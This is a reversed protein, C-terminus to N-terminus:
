PTCRDIVRLMNLACFRLDDIGISFGDKPEGSGVAEVIDAVNQECGPQQDDNGAHICGVSSAIPYKDSKGTFAPVSQSTYWDTMVFGDFGCEDRAFGQILDHDNATHVGNVLNYSTMVTMPRGQRIAIEFGKCYIERMTRETVNDCSFYRNDEQNNAVLHKICAGKGPNQQVGRVVAAAATGSVLPDESYYEFNRGCLPNRHINLAPALWVDVGFTVMEDSVMRGAEELLEPNWSQALAWGIPIATCYQYYTRSNEDDLSPDFPNYDDGLMEGGPLVNGDLDTKFVPQLRLGAPGDALILGKFGRSEALVSSTDGAAGPVGKSANGVLSGDSRLTGVCLEAMEDVTLQAVVDELTCRGSRVDELTLMGDFPKADLERSGQYAVRETVISSPDIAIPPTGPRDDPTSESSLGSASGSRDDSASGSAVDHQSETHSDTGTEPRIEEMPVDLEFLNRCVRTRVTEDLTLMGAVETDRSSTGVHVAYTGAELVWSAEEESYSALDRVDIEIDLTQVEGPELLRTKRFGKLEQRPKPLSGSPASVYAQVVEKGAREGTNAVDVSVWVVPSSEGHCSAAIGATRGPIGTGADSLGVSADSLEFTTYSLGYGFPYLPEVGFTDFYRYGVFVGETYREDDTDSDNSGFTASSPYDAYDVAWTDSLKGSPNVKGSIVDAIVDGGINGLQSMLVVANVGEVALVEKMDIIGGVNLVVAFRDYASALTRIDELEQSSLRYDGAEDKRDRGEGSTRSVVFVAQDTKSSEVDEKTIPIPGPEVFPEEFTIVLRPVGREEMRKPVYVDLYEERAREFAEDYRDLWARTVIEFGANQLGQEVNVSTRSNVDGSGTGGKVTHRAGVGYLAIPGPEMPLTGDNELLVVCEEAVKRALAAHEREENTVDPTPSAYIRTM